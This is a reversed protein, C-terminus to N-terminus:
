LHIPSVDIPDHSNCASLEKDSRDFGAVQKPYLAEITPSVSSRDHFFQGPNMASASHGSHLVWLHGDQARGFLCTEGCGYLLSQVRIRHRWFADGQDAHPNELVECEPAAVDTWFTWAIHEDRRSWPITRDGPEPVRAM